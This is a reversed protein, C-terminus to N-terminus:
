LNLMNANNNSRVVSHTHTHTHLCMSTHARDGCVNHARTHRNCMCVASVAVAYQTMPRRAAIEAPLIHAPRTGCARSQQNTCKCVVRFFFLLLFLFCGGSSCLMIYYLFASWINYLVRARAHTYCVNYYPAYARSTTASIPRAQPTTNTKNTHACEKAFSFRTQHLYKITITLLHTRSTTTTTYTHKQQQQQQHHKSSHWKICLPYTHEKRIM